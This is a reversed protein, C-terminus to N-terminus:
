ERYLLWLLLLSFQRIFLLFVFTFCRSSTLKTLLVSFLDFKEKIKVFCIVHLANLIQFKFISFLFLFFFFLKFPVWPTPPNFGLKLIAEKSLRWPSSWEPSSDISVVANRCLFVRPFFRSQSFLSLASLFLSKKTNAAFFYPVCAFRFTVTEGFMYLPSWCPGHM